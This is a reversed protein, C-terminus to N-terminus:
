VFVSKGTFRYLLRKMRYTIFDIGVPRDKATRIFLFLGIVTM